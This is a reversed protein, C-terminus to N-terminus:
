VQMFHTEVGAPLMGRRYEVKKFLRQKAIEVELDIDSYSKKEMTPQVASARIDQTHRREVSQRVEEQIRSILSPLSPQQRDSPNEFISNLDGMLGKDDKIEDEKEIHTATDSCKTQSIYPPPIYQVYKIKNQKIEKKVFLEEIVQVVGELIFYVKTPNGITESLIIQDREYEQINSVLCCDTKNMRTWSDFYPFIKMGELMEDWLALLTDKLILHFDEEPLYLLECDALFYMVKILQTKKM